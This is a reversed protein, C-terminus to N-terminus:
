SVYSSVSLILFKELFNKKGACKLRSLKRKGVESCLQILNYIWLVTKSLLDLYYMKTMSCIENPDKYHELLKYEDRNREDPFLCLSMYESCESNTSRFGHYHQSRIAVNAGFIYQMNHWPTGVIGSTDKICLLHLFLTFIGLM